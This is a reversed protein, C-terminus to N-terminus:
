SMLILPLVTLLVFKFLIYYDFKIRNSPLVPKGDSSIVPLERLTAGDEKTRALWRNFKFRYIENSNMDKM